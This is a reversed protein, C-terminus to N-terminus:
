SRMEEQQSKQMAMERISACAKGLALWLFQLGARLPGICIRLM